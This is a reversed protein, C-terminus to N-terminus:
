RSLLQRERAAQRSKWGSVWGTLDTLTQHIQDADGVDLVVERGPVDDVRIKARLKGDAILAVLDSKSAPLTHRYNLRVEGTQGDIQRQFVKSSHGCEAMRAANTRRPAYPKTSATTMSVPRATARARNVVPGVDRSAQVFHISHSALVWAPFSAPMKTLYSTICRVAHESSKFPADGPLDLGGIHWTDKWLRWAVRRDIYHEALDALDALVHWHPWSNKQFELVSVWRRIRLRAMLRAVFSRRTVARHAAEPCAFWTPNVTLTLLNPHAFLSAKAILNERVRYGYASGCRPCTRTGCRCPVILGALPAPSREGVSPPRTLNNQEANFRSPPSQPRATRRATRANPIPTHRIFPDDKQQHAM